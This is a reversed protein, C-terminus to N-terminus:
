PKKAIERFCDMNIKIRTGKMGMSRSDLVGASELKRLANVLVSNTIGYKEAVKSTVITGENGSFEDLLKNVADRESFSLTGIAMNVAANRRTEEEAALRSKRQIELAVVAAGYECLAIDEEDFKDRYRTLILTGRRKGGCVSPVICHYKDAMAYDRGLLERVERGTINAATQKLMLFKSNHAESLREGGAEDAVTSTDEANEYGVGLVYGAADTIYVNASLISRLMESLEDYSFSGTTSETLVRNLRRIKELINGSM